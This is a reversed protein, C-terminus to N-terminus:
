ECKVPAVIFKSIKLFQLLKYSFERQQKDFSFSYIDKAIGNPLNKSSVRLDFSSSFVMLPLHFETDKEVVYHSTGRNYRKAKSNSRYKLQYNKYKVGNIITDTNNEFDFLSSDYKKIGQKQYGISSCSLTVLDAQFFDKKGVVSNSLLGKEDTMTMNFNLDDRERVWCDYTNDQSNTLLYHLKVESKPNLQFEYVILYDFFYKKQAFCCAVSFLLLLISIKFKM